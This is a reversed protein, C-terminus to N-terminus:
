HDISVHIKSFCELEGESYGNELITTFLSKQQRDVSIRMLAKEMNKINKSSKCRSVKV